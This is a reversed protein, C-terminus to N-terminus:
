EMRLGFAYWNTNELTTPLLMPAALLLPDGLYPPWTPNSSAGSHFCPLDLTLGLAGTAQLERFGEYPVLDVIIHPSNTSDYRSRAFKARMEIKGQPTTLMVEHHSPRQITISGSCYEESSVGMTDVKLHPGSGHEVICTYDNGECAGVEVKIKNYCRASPGCLFTIGIADLVYHHLDGRRLHSGTSEKM